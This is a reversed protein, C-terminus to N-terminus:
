YGGDRGYVGRAHVVAAGAESATKLAALAGAKAGEAAAATIAEVDAGAGVNDLHVVVNIVNGGRYSGGDSIAPMQAMTNIARLAPLTAANVASRRVVFEGPQLWSLVDGGDHYKPLRSLFQDVMGGDHMLGLYGSRNSAANGLSSISMTSVGNMTSILGQVANTASGAQDSVSGLTRSIFTALKSNFLDAEEGGSTFSNALEWIRDKFSIAADETLGLRSALNKIENNYGRVASSGMAFSNLDTNMGQILSSVSNKMTTAAQGGELYAQATPSLQAKVAALQTETYGAVTGLREFAGWIQEANKSFMGFDEDVGQVATGVRDLNEAMGELFNANGAWNAIAEAPSMPNGDGFIGDYIIGPMDVLSPIAGGSLLSGVEWLAFPAAVGAATGWSFGSAAAGTAAGASSAVETAATPGLLAAAEPGLVGTLAVQSSTVVAAETAAQTAAGTIWTALSDLGLAGAVAAAGSKVGSWAASSAVGSVISGTVSGDTSSGFLGELGLGKLTNSLSFESGTFLGLLDKLLGAFGSMTWQAVLQALMQIWTQEIADCFSEFDTLGSAIYDAWASQTGQMANKVGDAKLNETEIYYDLTNELWGKNIEELRQAKYQEILIAGHGAARLDELEQDLQTRKLERGTKGYTEMSRLLGKDHEAQAKEVATLYSQGLQAKLQDAKEETYVGASILDEIRGYTVEYSDGIHALNREHANMGDRRLAKELDVSETMMSIYFDMQKATAANDAAADRDIEAQSKTRKTPAPTNGGYDVASEYPSRYTIMGPLLGMQDISGTLQADKWASWLQLSPSVSGEGMLKADSPMTYATAGSPSPVGPLMQHPAMQKEYLWGFLDGLDGGVTNTMWQSWWEGTMWDPWQNSAIKGIDRSVGPLTLGVLAGWGAGQLGGRMGGKLGGSLMGAIGGAAAGTGAGAFGSSLMKGLTGNKQINTDLVEILSSLADKLANIEPKTKQGITDYLGDFREGLSRTKKESNDAVKNYAKQTEGLANLTRDWDKHLGDTDQLLANVAEMASKEGLLATRQRETAGRVVELTNFLNNGRLLLTNFETGVLKTGESMEYWTKRALDTQKAFQIFLAGIDTFAKNTKIGQRTVTALMAGLQELGIKSSAATSVVDGIGAALEEYTTKGRAVTAFAVDNVRSAQDASLRYANLVSTTFDVSTATTTFGAEAARASITLVDVAKASDISASLIDYLGTYLTGTTQGYEVALSKVSKQYGSLTSQYKGSGMSTRDLMTSVRSLDKETRSFVRHTETGWRILAAVSIVGALSGGLQASMRSLGGMSASTNGMQSALRGMSPHLKGVAQGVLAVKKSAKTADEGAQNFARRLRTSFQSVAAPNSQRYGLEIEVRKKM